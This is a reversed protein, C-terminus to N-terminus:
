EDPRYRLALVSPAGQTSSCTPSVKRRSGTCRHRCRPPYRERNGRASWSSPCAPGGPGTSCDLSSSWRRNLRGATLSTSACRGSSPGCRTSRRRRRRGPRASRRGPGTPTGTWPRNPRARRCCSSGSATRCSTTCSGRSGVASRRPPWSPPWAGRRRWLWRGSGRCSPASGGRWSRVAAGAAVVLGLVGLTFVVGILTQGFPQGLNLVATFAVLIAVVLRLDGAYVVASFTAVLTILISAGSSFSGFLLAVAGMAVFSSAFASLPWLRRVALAAGAMGLLVATPLGPHPVDDPSFGSLVGLGALLVALGVDLVAGSRSLGGRTM